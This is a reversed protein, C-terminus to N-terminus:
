FIMFYIYSVKVFKLVAKGLGLITIEADKTSKIDYIAILIHTIRNFFVHRNRNEQGCHPKAEFM